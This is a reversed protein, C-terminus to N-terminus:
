VPPTILWSVRRVSCPRDEFIQLVGGAMRDPYCPRDLRHSSPPAAIDLWDGPRLLRAEPEDAFRLKAAGALVLVWEGQPQDYWFGPPSTQGLSVIREVRMGPRTLLTETQEAARADPLSSLLNM